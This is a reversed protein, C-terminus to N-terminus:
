SLRWAEVNLANLRLELALDIRESRQGFRHLDGAKVDVVDVTEQTAPFERADAGFLDPLSIADIWFM